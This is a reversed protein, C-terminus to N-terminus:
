RYLSSLIQRITNNTILENVWEVFMLYKKLSMLQYLSQGLHLNLTLIDYYKRSIETFNSGYQSLTKKAWSLQSIMFLSLLLTARVLPEWCSTPTLLKGLQEQCSRWAFLLQLWLSGSAKPLGGNSSYYGSATRSRRWCRQKLVRLCSLTQYDRSALCETPRYRKTTINDSLRM